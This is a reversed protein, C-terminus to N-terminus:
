HTQTLSRCSSLSGTVQLRLSQIEQELARKSFELEKLQCDKEGETLRLSLLQEELSRCKAM